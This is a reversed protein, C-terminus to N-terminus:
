NILENIGDIVGSASEVLHAAGKILAYIKMVLMIAEIATAVISIILGVRALISGIKAKGTLVGGQALYDKVKKSAILGLIIGVFSECFVLTLIGLVLIPTPNLAPNVPTPRVPAVNPLPQQILPANYVPPQYYVQQTPAAGSTPPQYYPQAPAPNPYPSSPYSRQPTSHNPRGSFGGVPQFTNLPTGCLKCFAAGEINNTGCNKCIM